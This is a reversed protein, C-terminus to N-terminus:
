VAQILEFGAKEFALRWKLNCHDKEPDIGCNERLKEKVEPDSFIRQCCHEFKDYGYGGAEAYMFVPDKGECYFMAFGVHARYGAKARTFHCILKGAVRYGDKKDMILYVKIMGELKQQMEFFKEQNSKM